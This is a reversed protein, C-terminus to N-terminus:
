KGIDKLNHIPKLRDVIQATPAIAREIMTAPKYAGAAEDLTSKCVSTSFIGANEMEKRFTEMDLNRLADGRSM